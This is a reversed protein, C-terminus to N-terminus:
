LPDTYRTPLPRTLPWLSLRSRADTNTRTTKLSQQVHSPRKSASIQERHDDSAKVAPSLEVERIDDSM